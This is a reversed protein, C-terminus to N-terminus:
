VRAKLEETLQRQQALVEAAPTYNMEGKAMRREARALEGAFYADIGHGYLYGPGLNGVAFPIRQERDLESFAKRIYTTTDLRWEKLNKEVREKLDPDIRAQVLATAAMIAGLTNM